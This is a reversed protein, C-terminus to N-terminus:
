GASLWAMYTGSLGALTAANQCLSDGGVLGGFAAGFQRSTIFVKKPLPPLTTSSTTSTSSSTTSSSSTSTSTSSTSTSTTSTSSTSSSTSTSPSTSSQEFCYLNRVGDCRSTAFASWQALLGTKALGTTAVDSNSASTWGLCDSTTQVGVDKTGTWVELNDVPVGTETLVIPALLMGDTLDTWNNAIRRTGDGLLYAGTSQTFRTAPSTSGASLWAMYTGSLGALTAANQCLSDGGVLGGFAAGFQRSTIFVKKPLPPLTTSSTTSTSS